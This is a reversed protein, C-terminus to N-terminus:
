GPHAVDHVAAAVLSVYHDLATIRQRLYETRLFWEMTLMVDLAHFKNHFAMNNYQNEIARFYIGLRFMFEKEEIGEDAIRHVHDQTVHPGICALPQGLVEPRTGFEIADFELKGVLDFLKALRDSKM